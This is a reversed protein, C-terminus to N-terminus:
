VFVGLWWCIVDLVHHESDDGYHNNSFGRSRPINGQRWSLADKTKNENAEGTIHVALALLIAPM